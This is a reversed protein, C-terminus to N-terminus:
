PRDFFAYLDEISVLSKELLVDVLEGGEDGLFVALDCALRARLDELRRLQCLEGTRQWLDGSAFHELHAPADFTTDLPERHADNRRDRWEVERVHHRIPRQGVCDCEPIRQYQFGGLEYRQTSSTD